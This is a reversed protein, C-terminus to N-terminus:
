LFPPDRAPLSSFHAASLRFSPPDPLAESRVCTGRAGLRPVRCPNVSIWTSLLPPAVPDRVTSTLTRGWRYPACSRCVPPPLREVLARSHIMCARPTGPGAGCGRPRRHGGCVPFATPPFQSAALRATDRVLLLLPRLSTAFVRPGPPGRTDRRGYVGCCVSNLFGTVGDDIARVPSM